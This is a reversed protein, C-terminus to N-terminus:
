KLVGRRILLKEIEVAWFVVTSLVLCILLQELTLPNTGFLENFFPLYAALLQIVVTVVVAGILLRNSFFPM